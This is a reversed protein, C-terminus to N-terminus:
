FLNLPITSGLVSLTPKCKNILLTEHIMLENPDFCSAKKQTSLCWSGNCDLTFYLLSSRNAKWEVSCWVPRANM